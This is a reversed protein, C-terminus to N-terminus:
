LNDYVQTIAVLLGLLGKELAAMESSNNTNTGLTGGFVRFISELLVEHEQTALIERALRM